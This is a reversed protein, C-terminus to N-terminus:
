RALEERIIEVFRDYPLAGVVPRGNVFLTPTSSVGYAMGARLDREVLAAQGGGDLCADFADTDLGIEGAYQKLSPVDLAGQREFLTDHFAWFQGQDHACNAAEAAKFANPHSPLPYDKYVFRIQEGYEAILRHLTETARKCFPCDFDSFEVIEIPADAPGRVPDEDLIEIPQRPPELTITVDDGARRRLETTYAHLAQMPRQREIFARIEPAMQELTRDGFQTKNREYVLAVEEDTVPLTRSPLEADLLAERTLGRAAAERDLLREGVVIDLARRRTEYLDTLMRLRSSADNRRWADEVEAATIADDGVRAVVEDEASQATVPSALGAWVALAGLLWRAHQKAM